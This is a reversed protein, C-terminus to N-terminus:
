ERYLLLTDMVMSYNGDRQFVGFRIRQLIADYSFKGLAQSNGNQAVFDGKGAKLTANQCFPPPIFVSPDEIGHVINFF